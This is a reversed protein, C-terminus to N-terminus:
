FQECGDNKKTGFIKTLTTHQQRSVAAQRRNELSWMVYGVVGFSHCVSVNGNPKLIVCTVVLSM